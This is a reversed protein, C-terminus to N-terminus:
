RRRERPVPHRDGVRTALRVAAAEVAGVPDPGPGGPAAAEVDALDLASAADGDVSGVLAVVPVGAAVALRVVHDVVKGELTTADLRGEGTIVLDAAAIAAPLGVLEAVRAAGPVIRAGLAAALGFALGGAAGTGPADPSPAAPLDRAAVDAWVGLAETLAAVAAADAGKQPGFVAACRTLPTTVDALLEVDLDDPLQAWGRAVAAVRGLDAGGVRLGSGDAVTLRMGLGTLAGAGGDVTASGGLGITLRRAGRAIAAAILEGVGHSTTRMPDRRAPDVADVLALGCARASEIVADGGATVLWAADVPLGLPGAVEATARTDGPRALVDLLGEGGDSMPVVTVHDAPRARRWGAAIAAAAVPAALTGGFADPAVVVRRPRAPGAGAPPAGASM